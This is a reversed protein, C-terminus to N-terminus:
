QSPLRARPDIEVAVLRDEIGGPVDLEVFHEAARGVEALNGVPGIRIQLAAVVPFVAHGDLMFQHRADRHGDAVVAAIEVIEVDGVVQVERDVSHFGNLIVVGVSEAGAPKPRLRDGHVAQVGVFDADGVSLRRVNESM